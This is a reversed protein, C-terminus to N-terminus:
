ASGVAIDARMEAPPKMLTLSLIDADITFILDSEKLKAALDTYDRVNGFNDPNQVLLGCYESAKDWPFDEVKGIVLEMDLAHCKTKIVDITQPFTSSSLYFKLRKGGHHVFSLQVAEAAATSEDLLSANAVPYGTLEM